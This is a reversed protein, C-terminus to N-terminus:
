TTRLNRVTEDNTINWLMISKTKKKHETSPLISTANGNPTFHFCNGSGSGVLTKNEEAVGL